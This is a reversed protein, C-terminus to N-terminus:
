PSHKRPNDASANRISNKLRNLLNKPKLLLRAMVRGVFWVSRQHLFFALMLSWSVCNRGSAGVDVSESFALLKEAAREPTPLEATKGDSFRLPPHRLVSGRSLDAQNYGAVSTFSKAYSELDSNSPVVVPLGYVIADQLRGSSQCSWTETPYFFTVLNSGLFQELYGEVGQHGPTFELGEIGSMSEVLGGSVGHVLYTCEQCRRDWSELFDFEGQKERVLCLNRGHLRTERNRRESNQMLVKAHASFVPFVQLNAVRRLRFIESLSATDATVVLRGRGCRIATSIFLRLFYRGCITNLYTLFRTSDFLNVVAVSDSNTMGLSLSMTAIWALHGEYVVVLRGKDSLLHVLERHFKLTSSPKKSAMSNPVVAKYDASPNSEGTVSGWLDAEFGNSVFSKALAEHFSHWHGIREGTMYASIVTVRSHRRLTM